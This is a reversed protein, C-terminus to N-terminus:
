SESDHLLSQPLSKSAKAGLKRIEEIRGVINGKGESLKNMANSFSSEAKALSSGVSNMDEIFGVFKDYLRGTQLAINVANETQKERTWLQYMLKVVSILHTPSCIVIHKDYAYQWLDDEAQMATMYAGENPIFMIMFDASNEVYRSYDARALEDVHSRVSKLHQRLLEARRQEDTQQQFDVYATLSTKADIVISKRDPLFFVVDPRLLRGDENKLTEGSSTRTLQTVYNVGEQLGGKELIQSLIMEGWDGQRKPDAKLASTLQRAEQGITKNLETLSKITEKLSRVDSVEDTYCKEIKERLSEVEKRFPGLIEGLRQENSEKFTKSHNELITNALTQFTLKTQDSFSERLQKENHVQERLSANEAVAKEYDLLKKELDSIRSGATRVAEDQMQRQQELLAMADAKADLTDHLARVRPHLVLYCFLLGLLFAGVAVFILLVPEM